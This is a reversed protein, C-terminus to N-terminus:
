LSEIAIPLLAIPLKIKKILWLPLYQSREVAM